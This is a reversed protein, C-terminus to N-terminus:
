SRPSTTARRRSWRRVGRGKSAEDFPCEEHSGGHNEEDAYVVGPSGLHGGGEELVVGFSSYSNEGRAGRRGVLNVGDDKVGHAFEPQVERVALGQTRSASM